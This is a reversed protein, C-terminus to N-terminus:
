WVKPPLVEIFKKLQERREPLSATFCGSAGGGSMPIAASGGLLSVYVAGNIFRFPSEADPTQIDRGTQASPIIQLYRPNYAPKPLRWLTYPELAPKKASTDTSTKPSVQKFPQQAWLSTSALLILCITLFGRKM